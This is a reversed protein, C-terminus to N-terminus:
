LYGKHWMRLYHDGLRQRFSGLSLHDNNWQKNTKQKQKKSNNEHSMGHGNM